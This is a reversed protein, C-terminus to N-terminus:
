QCGFGKEGAVVVRVKRPSSPKAAPLFFSALSVPRFFFFFLLRLHDEEEEEEEEGEGEGEEEEEEGDRCNGDEEEEEEEEEEKEWSKRGDKERGSAREWDAFFLQSEVTRGM